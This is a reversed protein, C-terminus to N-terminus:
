SIEKVAMAFALIADAMRAETNGMAHFRALYSCLSDAAVAQRVGGKKAVIEVRTEYDKLMLGELVYSYYNGGASEEKTLDAATLGTVKTTGYSIDFTLGEVNEPLSFYLKMQLNEGLVCSTGYLLSKNQGTLVSEDKRKAALDLNLYQQYASINGNAPVEAKYGFFSQAEAGYNLMAVLARGIAASSADQWNVAELADEAMKQVSLEVTKGVYIRGSATNAVPVVKFTDAMYKAGYSGLSFASDTIPTKKGTELDLLFMTSYTCAVKGEIRIDSDVTLNYAGNMGTHPHVDGEMGKPLTIGLYDGNEKLTIYYPDCSLEAGVVKGYVLVTKESAVTVTNETLDLTVGAPIVMNESVTLPEKVMVTDGEKADKLATELSLYNKDGITVKPTTVAYTDAVFTYAKGNHWVTETQHAATQSVGAAMAYTGNFIKQVGASNYTYLNNGVTAAELNVAGVTDTAGVWIAEINNGFVKSNGTLNVTGLIVYVGCGDRAGYLGGVVTSNHINTVQEAKGSSSLYIAHQGSLLTMDEVNTISGANVCTMDSDITGNKLTVASLGNASKGDDRFLFTGSGMFDDYVTHGDFDITLSKGTSILYKSRNAVGGYEGYSQAVEDADSTDVDRLLKLTDGNAAKGVAESLAAYTKGTTENLVDPDKTFTVTRYGVGLQSYHQYGDQSRLNTTTYVEVGEGLTMSSYDWTVGDPIMIRVDNEATVNKYPTGDNGQQLPIDAASSSSITVNKLTLSSGSSKCVACGNRTISNNLYVWGRGLLTMNEMRANCTNGLYIVGDVTGNKLVYSKVSSDTGNLFNLTDKPETATSTVTFGNFDITLSKQMTITGSLALNEHLVITDGDVAATVASKLDAYYSSVGASQVEVARANTTATQATLGVRAPRMLFFVDQMFAQHLITSYSYKRIGYLTSNPPTNSGNEAPLVQGNQGKKAWYTVIPDNTVTLKGDVYHAFNDSGLYVYVAENVLKLNRTRAGKEDREANAYILVDGPQLFDNRLLRLRNENTRLGLEDVTYLRAGGVFGPVIMKRLTKADASQLQSEEALVYDTRSAKSEKVFNIERCLLQLLEATEPLDVKYGMAGYVDEAIDTGARPVATNTTVSSATIASAKSASLQQAVVEHTLEKTGLSGAQGSTSSVITGKPSVIQTGGTVKVTYSISITNGASVSPVTWTLTNGSQTPTVTSSVFTTGAPITETLKLDKYTKNRSTEKVVAGWGKTKGIGLLNRSGEGIDYQNVTDRTNNDIRITYTITDGVKVDHYPKVDATKYIGLAPHHLRFKAADTMDTNDVANVPRLITFDYVATVDYSKGSGLLYEYPAVCISGNRNYNEKSTGSISYDAWNAVAELRDHGTLLEGNPGLLNDNKDDNNYKTGSSHIVYDKGDGFIDGLFMMTHGGSEDVTGDEDTTKPHAAIIDGPRMMAQVEAITVNAGTFVDTDKGNEDKVPGWYGIVMNGPNVAGNTDDWVEGIATYSATVNELALEYALQKDTLPTGNVQMGTTYPAFTHTLHAIQAQIDKNVIHEGFASFFADHPFASCVTYHIDDISAEEPERNNTQRLIGSYYRGGKTLYYSDYQVSNGKYYFTLATEVLAREKDTMSDAADVNGALLATMACLILILSLLKKM